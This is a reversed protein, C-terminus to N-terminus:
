GRAGERYAAVARYLTQGAERRAADMAETVEWSQAGHGAQARCADAWVAAAEVVPRMRECEAAMRALAEASYRTGHIVVAIVAGTADHIDEM